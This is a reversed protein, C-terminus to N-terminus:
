ETMLGHARLARALHSTAQHHRGLATNLPVGQRAAIEAFSLDTTMRLRFVEALEPKMATLVQEVVALTQGAALVGDATSGSRDAPETDARGGDIPVLVVARSRRRARDILLRRAVVYVFARFSRDDACDPDAQTVRLWTEQAVEDPEPSRRRLFGILEDRLQSIRQQLVSQRLGSSEAV